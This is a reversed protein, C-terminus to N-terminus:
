RRSAEIAEEYVALFGQAAERQRGGALSRASGQKRMRDTLGPEEIVRVLSEAMSEVDGYPTLLGAEGGDVMEPIIGVPTAVLPCGLELAEMAVRCSTEFSSAVVTVNSNRLIHDVDQRYGLFQVHKVVGLQECLAKLKQELPGEGVVWVQAQPIRAVVRAVARFFFEHGKVEVLRGVISLVPGDGRAPLAAPVGFSGADCSHRVLRLKATLKPNACYKEVAAESSETIRDFGDLFQRDLWQMSELVVGKESHRPTAVLGPRRRMGRTAALGVLDSKFDHTHLVDVGGEEIQRRLIGLIEPLAAWQSSLELYATGQAVALAELPHRGPRGDAWQHIMAIGSRHGLEQLGRSIGLLTKEPGYINGSQRLHLVKM